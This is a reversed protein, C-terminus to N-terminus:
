KRIGTLYYGNGWSKFVWYVKGERAEIFGHPFLQGIRHVEVMDKQSINIEM